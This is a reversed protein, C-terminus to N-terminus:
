FPIESLINIIEGTVPHTFTLETAHLYLRDSKVGYLEDGKIPSNLGMCYACHVRLQHTRGTAPFLEVRREGVMRYSTVARSGKEFDVKQKPRSMFDPMLPLEIVGEPCDVVNDIVAVYRKKVSRCTFQEQLNKYSDMDRALLLLGSTAMDLRHVSFVEGYKASVIDYVSIVGGRGPVSLMSAPKDVVIINSDCYLYKLETELSYNSQHLPDSDVELGQLMFGLIPKCKGLCSPYFAGHNRIEGKPSVGWWYEGMCLPTMGNQFAYQLLKPAACEGAGAPPVRQPTPKFIDRLDCSEGRANLLQFQSFLWSQLAASRRKREERLMEIRRNYEDVELQYPELDKRLTEIFRKVEAKHYQSERNLQEIEEPTIGEQLRSKDREKKFRKLEIKSNRISFKAMESARELRVVARAYDDSCEIEKIALNINSINNEEELFYSGDTKMNFVPPVFYDCDDLSTINGSYAVLFGLREDKDRVVIVGFMKGLELEDLWHAHSSIFSNVEESALLILPHPTYNFPYTFKEPLDINAINQNFYHIM